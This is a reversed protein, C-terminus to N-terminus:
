VFRGHRENDTHQYVIISSGHLYSFYINLTLFDAKQNLQYLRDEKQRQSRFHKHIFIYVYSLLRGVRKRYFIMKELIKIHLLMKEMGYNRKQMDALSIIKLKEAAFAFM